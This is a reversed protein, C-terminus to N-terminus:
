PHLDPSVLACTEESETQETDIENYEACSIWNKGTPDYIECFRIWHKKKFVDKYCGRGFTYITVKGTNISDLAPQDIALDQDSIKVVAGYSQNPFLLAHSQIGLANTVVWNAAFKQGSALPGMREQSVFDMAPTKGTNQFLVAAHFPKGVEPIGTVQMMGIWARQDQRMQEQTAKISGESNKAMAAFDREAKGIRDNIEDATDSFQQAADAQDGAADAANGASDKIKEAANAIKTTDAGGGVMERWQLFIAAASVLTGAAIVITAWMMVRDSTSMKEPRENRERDGHPPIPQPEPPTQIPPQIPPKIPPAEIGQTESREKPADKKEDM